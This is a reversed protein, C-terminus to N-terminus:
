LQLIRIYPSLHVKGLCLTEENNWYYEANDKAGLTPTLLM